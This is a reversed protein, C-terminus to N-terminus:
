GGGGSWRRIRRKNRDGLVCLLFYFILSILLGGCYWVIILNHRGLSCPMLYLLHPQGQNPSFGHLVLSCSPPVTTRKKTLSMIKVALDRWLLALDGIKLNGCIIITSNKYSKKLVACRSGKKKFMSTSPFWLHHLSIVIVEVTLILVQIDKRTEERM